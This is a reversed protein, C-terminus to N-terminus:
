AAWDGTTTVTHLYWALMLIFALKAVESPQADIPGLPIWRRSGKSGETFLVGVLVILTVGFFFYALRGLRHYPVVTAVVFAALAILASVMQKSAFGTISPDSQESVRIAVIGWTMLAIMALIIPWSTYRLYTKLTDKM